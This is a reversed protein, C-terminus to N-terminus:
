HEETGTEWFKESRSIWAVNSHMVCMDVMPNRARISYKWFM